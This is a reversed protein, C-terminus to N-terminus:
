YGPNVHNGNLRVEYHLHCGYKKVGGTGTGGSLGIQQGAKVVENPSVYITSLHAYLSQVGQGHDIMVTKGYAGKLGAWSVTGNGTAYVKTGCNAQLDVGTHFINLKMCASYNAQGKCYADRYSYSSDLYPANVSISDLPANTLLPKLYEPLNEGSGPAGGLNGIRWSQEPFFMAYYEKYQFIESAVDNKFTMVRDIITSDTDKSQAPIHLVLPYGYKNPEPIDKENMVEKFVNGIVGQFRKDIFGYGTSYSHTSPWVSKSETVPTKLAIKYKEESYGLYTPQDGQYEVEQYHDPCPPCDSAKPIGYEDYSPLECAMGQLLMTYIDKGAEKSAEENKVFGYCIKYLGTDIMGNALNELDEPDTRDKPEYGYLRDYKEAIETTSNLLNYNIGVSGLPEKFFGTYITDDDITKGNVDITAKQKVPELIINEKFTSIIKEIYKDKVADYYKEQDTKDEEKEKFGFWSKVQDLFTRKKKNSRYCITYEAKVNDRTKTIKECQTPEDKNANPLEDLNKIAETENSGYSYDTSSKYDVNNNDIVPLFLLSVMMLIIIIFIGGCGFFIILNRQSFM